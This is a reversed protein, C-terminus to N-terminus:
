NIPQWLSYTIDQNNYVVVNCTYMCIGGANRSYLSNGNKDLLDSTINQGAAKETCVYAQITNGDNIYAITGVKSNKMKDFGQYYHDGILMQNGWPMYAASDSADTVKQNAAGDSSSVEFLAVDVGASPITLRGSMGTRRAMESAVTTLQELSSVFFTNEKADLDNFPREDKLKNIVKITIEEPEGTVGSLTIYYKGNEYTLSAGDSNLVPKMEVFDFYQNINESIEYKGPMLDIFVLQNKNNLIGHIEVGTYNGYTEIMGTDGRSITRELQKLVIPFQYTDNINLYMRWFDDETALENNKNIIEKGVTISYSPAIDIELPPLWIGVNTATLTNQNIYPEYYYYDLFLNSEDESITYIYKNGQADYEPVNITIAWVNTNSASANTNTFTLIQYVQGNQYVTIDLSDPRTNYINNDDKWIKTITLPISDLKNTLNIENTPQTENEMNTVTNNTLSYNDIETGDSSLEIVYFYEYYTEVFISKNWVNTNSSNVNDKTLTVTELLEGGTTANETNTGYIQVQISEPRTNFENNNDVWTKNINFNINNPEVITNTINIFYNTASKDWVAFTSIEEIPNIVSTYKDSNVLEEAYFYSYYTEIEESTIAWTNEDVANTNNLTVTTLLEGGSTAGQTNSGYIKVQISEPRLNYKNNEDDWVKNINFQVNKNSLVFTNTLNVNYFTSDFYTNICNVTCRTGRYDDIEINLIPKYSNNECTEEVWIFDPVQLVKSMMEFNWNEVYIRLDDDSFIKNPDELIEYTSEFLRLKFWLSKTEPNNETNKYFTFDVSEPRENHENNNDNWTKNIIVSDSTVVFPSIGSEEDTNNTSASSVASIEQPSVTNLSLTYEGNVNASDCIEKVYFYKYETEIVPSTIEWINSNITLANSSNLTVTQLLEGGSTAGETNTGYIEVQISEPRSNYSNNEDDWAKSITFQINNPTNITNTITAKYKEIYNNAINTTFLSALRYYIDNFLIGSDNPLHEKINSHLNSVTTTKVKNTNVLYNSNIQTLLNIATTTTDEVLYINEPSISPDMINTPLLAFSVWKNPDSPDVDSSTLDIESLYTDPVGDADSDQYIAITILEPRQSEFGEDNWIKIVEILSARPLGNGAMLKVQTVNNETDTLLNIKNNESINLSAVYPTGTISFSPDEIIKYEYPNGEEDFKPYNNNFANIWTTDDLADDITITLSDIKINNQYLNFTVSNPIENLLNTPVIWAKEIVFSFTENINDVNPDAQIIAEESMNEEISYPSIINKSTNNTTQTPNNLIITPQIITATYFPLNEEVVYFYNYHTEIIDTTGTWKEASLDGSLTISDIKEGNSTDGETNTGYIDVNISTPKLNYKNNEDQWIKEIEFQVHKPPIYKNTITAYFENTAIMAPAISYEDLSQEQVGVMVEVDSITVEYAEQTSLVEKLHYYSYDGIELMDSYVWTYDDIMNNKTLTITTLLTWLSEDTTNESSGYIEIEIKEPRKNEYGEDDWIKEIHVDDFYIISPDDGQEFEDSYALLNSIMSFIMCFVLLFSIIRNTKKNKINM